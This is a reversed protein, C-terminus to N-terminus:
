KGIKLAKEIAPKDFGVIIKGNIEIMPVKMQGSKDIMEKSAQKNKSVDIEEYKVNKQKFFDKTVKCWICQPTTYIKVAM